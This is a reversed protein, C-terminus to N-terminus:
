SCRARKARAQRGLGRAGAHPLRPRDRLSAHHLHARGLRGDEEHLSVRRALEADGRAGAAHRALVTQPTRMFEFHPYDDLSWSIPMEILPTQEGFRFPKGLKAVDGRRARYPLYDAGMLSSDYLFGHALLLDITHESLDWSPSRYGRAKRGTLRAIARTPACSTPRRRTAADPQRAPHAGLQPARDRPRGRGGRRMGEALERHHLRAHVVDGQHRAGQPFRPDAAGVGDRRVRRAVAADAHDHRARHLGVPHRLRLHPLRHPPAHRVLNAEGM